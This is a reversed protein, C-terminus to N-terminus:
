LPVDGDDERVSKLLRASIDRGPWYRRPTSTWIACAANTALCSEVVHELYPEENGSELTVGERWWKFLVAVTMGFGYRAPAVWRAPVLFFASRWALGRVTVFAMGLERNAALLVKADESRHRVSIAAFTMASAAAELRSVADELREQRRVRSDWWATFGITVAAALLGAVWGSMGESFEM